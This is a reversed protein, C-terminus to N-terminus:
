REMEGTTIVNNNNNVSGYGHPKGEDFMGDYVFEDKKIFVGKGKKIGMEYEGDYVAKSEGYTYIGKGHFYNKYFM